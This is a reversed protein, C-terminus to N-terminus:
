KEGTGTTRSSATSANPLVVIDEQRLSPDSSAKVMKGKRKKEETKVTM